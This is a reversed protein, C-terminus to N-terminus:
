VFMKSSHLKQFYFLTWGITISNQKNTLLRTLTVWADVCFSNALVHCLENGDNVTDKSRCSISQWCESNTGFWLSVCYHLALKEWHSEEHCIHRWFVAFLWFAIQLSMEVFIILSTFLNQIKMVIICYISDTYDLAAKQILLM